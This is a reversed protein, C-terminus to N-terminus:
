PNPFRREVEAKLERNFRTYLGLLFNMKIDGILWTMGGILEDTHIFQTKRNDKAHISFRHNDHAGLIQTDNWGFYRGEAAFITHKYQKAFSLSSFPKINVVLSNGSKIEGGLIVISHSWRKMADTNSLVAWVNEPGADITIETHIQRHNFSPRKINSHNSTSMQTDIANM